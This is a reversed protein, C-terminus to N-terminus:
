IGNEGELLAILLRDFVDSTEYYGFQFNGSVWRAGKEHSGGYGDFNVKLLSKALEYFEDVSMREVCKLVIKMLLKGSIVKRTRM